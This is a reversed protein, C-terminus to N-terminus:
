DVKMEEFIDACDKLFQNNDVSQAISMARCFHYFIINCREVVVKGKSTVWESQWEHLGLIVSKMTVKVRSQVLMIFTPITINFLYVFLSLISLLLM